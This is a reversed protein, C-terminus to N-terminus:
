KALPQLYRPADIAAAWTKAAEIIEAPDAERCARAFAARDAHEDDPWPRQWISQLTEFDASIPVIDGGITAGTTTTNDEKKRAAVESTGKSEEEEIIRAGEFARADYLPQRSLADREGDKTEEKSSVMLHNKLHNMDAPTGKREVSPGKRTGKIEDFLDASPGKLIMWYRNSHGRGPKGWEVKLHGRQEFLHLLNVVTAKSMGIAGAVHECSAWAAGGYRRNFHETLQLACLAASPPLEHDSKIQRLWDFVQKTFSKAQKTQRKTSITAM